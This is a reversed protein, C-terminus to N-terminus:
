QSATDTIETTEAAVMESGRPPFRACVLVSVGIVAIAANCYFTLYSMGIAAFSSFIFGFLGLTSLIASHEVLTMAQLADAKRNAPVMETLVGKSAPATGSALPLLFAVLYMHWGQTAFAALATILGDILLSWRLFFLDFGAGQVESIPKPAKAPEEQHNVINAPMPDIEEPHTPIPSEPATDPLPEDTKKYWIRGYKIIIPFIGMLFVGRILLGVAMLISNSMPDFEFVTMSYMQILTPAYGTALVGLYVGFALFLLGFHKKLRGDQLRMMQPGLIKIPGFFGALGKAKTDSSLTIPDIYPVFLLTFTCCILFSVAAIEFPATINIKEAALGGFFFGLASGIMIIGQLRGFMATRGEPETVEAIITNLVLIYGAPGGWIGVLQSLQMIILGTKAGIALSTAQIVVRVAPFFTQIALSAKPGYHRMEWGAVFLNMIGIFVTAIGMIAFQVAAGADIENRACRNGSGEYPPAHKYFEECVMLHFTYLIPTQTYCFSLSIMFGALLSRVAPSFFKSQKNEQKPPHVDQSDGLLPTTEEGAM